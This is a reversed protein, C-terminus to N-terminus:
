AAGRDMMRAALTRVADAAQLPCVGNGTARLRDV